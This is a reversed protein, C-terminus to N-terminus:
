QKCCGNGPRRAPQTTKRGMEETLPFWLGLRSFVKYRISRPQAAPCLVQEPTSSKRVFAKDPNHTAFHCGRSQRLSAPDPPCDAARPQPHCLPLSGWGCGRLDRCSCSKNSLSPTQWRCFLPLTAFVRRTDTGPIPAQLSNSLYDRPQWRAVCMGSGPSPKGPATATPFGHGSRPSLRPDRFARVESAPFM